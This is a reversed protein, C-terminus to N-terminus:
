GVTIKAAAQWVIDHIRGCTEADMDGTPHELADALQLKHSEFMRARQKRSLIEKFQLVSLSAVFGGGLGVLPRFANDLKLSALASASAMGLGVVVLAAAFVLYFRMWEQETVILEEVKAKDNALSILNGGSIGTGAFISQLQDPSMGGLVEAYQSPRVTQIASLLQSTLNHHRCHILLRLVKDSKSMGASFEDLVQPFHDFCLTQIEEDNFADMLLRRVDAPSPGM